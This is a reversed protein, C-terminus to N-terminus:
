SSATSATTLVRSSYSRACTMMAQPVPLVRVAASIVARMAGVPRTRTMMGVRSSSWWDTCCYRCCRPALARRAAAIARHAPTAMDVLRRHVAAPHVALEARLGAPDPHGDARVPWDLHWRGSRPRYAVAVELGHRHGLHDAFENIAPGPPTAPMGPLTAVVEAPIAAAQDRDYLLHGEYAGVAALHGQEVLLPIHHPRVPWGTRAALAAATRTAGVPRHSDPADSM